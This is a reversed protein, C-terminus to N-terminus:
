ARDAVPQRLGALAQRTLKGVADRPLKPVMVVPRPLFVPEVRDRLAALVEAASLGPAVVYAALRASPREGLDEPALFVGDEVGEIETLMRTLGALSARKGGLKVVDGRRGLLRFRGDAAIEVADALPVPAPMGPVLVDVSDQPGPVMRTGPYLSWADGATTRRHAVSGMETAGYIELVPSAWAAEAAAALEASLPATASIVAKLGPLKTGSGLLARLQLPTTVLIRPAPCAQLAETVEVPFFCAGAHSTTPAHLPLMVTTEFGYMHQPPVTAVISVPAGAPQELAFSACAARAAGVLAGWPKPHAAPRGTSGSTFGIVAIRDCPIMPNPGAEGAGEAVVRIADPPFDEPAAEGADILTALDPYDEALERQRRPSRDSSLLAVQGRSLAAAFGVLALYRDACLNLAHSRNPLRAALAAVDALFRGCTVPEADRRFLIDGTARATLPLVQEAM